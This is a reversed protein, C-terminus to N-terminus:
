AAKGIAAAVDDATLEPYEEVIQTVTYGADAFEQITRVPIRTGGLVPQNQVVGKKREVTGIESPDRRRLREIEDEIKGTVVQLPIQLIGQGSVIEERETTEPNDFIVKRNLVYLTTSAWLQDGLHSLKEKVQRLHTLPVQAENRLANLVRLSAIDRFSYLRSFAQSRDEYAFSPVFFGIRDWYRLQRRTIHALREVQDETFTMVVSNSSGPPVAPGECEALCSIEENALKVCM